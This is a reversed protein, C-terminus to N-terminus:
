PDETEKIRSYDGNREQRGKKGNILHYDTQVMHGPPSEVNQIQGVAKRHHKKNKKKFVDRQIPLSIQFDLLKDLNSNQCSCKVFQHKYKGNYCFLPVYNDIEKSLMPDTPEPDGQDM